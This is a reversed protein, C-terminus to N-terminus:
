RRRVRIREMKRTNGFGLFIIIAFVVYLVFFGVHSARDAIATSLMHIFSTVVMGVTGILFYPNFSVM